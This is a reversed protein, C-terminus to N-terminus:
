YWQVLIRVNDLMKGSNIMELQSSIESLPLEDSKAVLLKNICMVLDNIIYEEELVEGYFKKFNDVGQVDLFSFVNNLDEVAFGSHINSFDCIILHSNDKCVIIDEVRM